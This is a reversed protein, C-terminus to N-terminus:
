PDSFDPLLDEVYELLWDWWDGLSPMEPLELGDYQRELEDLIEGPSSKVREWIEAASPITLECVKKADDEPPAQSFAEALEEMDRMTACADTIEMTTVAVIVFIGFVPIGEGFTSAVNRAAGITTRRSIRSTVARVAKAQQAKESKLTGVEKRTVELEANKANLTSKIKKTEADATKLERKTKALSTRTETLEEVMESMATPIGFTAALTSVATVVGTSFTILAGYLLSLALVTSLVFSSRLLRFIM